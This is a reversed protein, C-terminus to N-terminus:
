YTFPITLAAHAVVANGFRNNQVVYQLIAEFRAGAWRDPLEFVEGLLGVKAELTHSTFKSLKVDDSLFDGEDAMDYREEYFFAKKTQRHFRYRVTADIGDGVAQIARLEPTHARLKWNDRYFRYLGVLTTETARVHYRASAAVATRNRDTPHRERVTGVSTGTGVIASRYPNSMYGRMAVFDASVGVVATRSLIHSASAFLSYTQLDCQPTEAAGRKCQLMLQALGSAPGGSITDRGLGGGLGVTANKQALELEGRAGLYFSKYDPESSYKTDGGAKWGDGEHTYGIGGEYRKETFPETNVAGSSQSASTIADVLVHGTVLGREGAEFAGDLMPQMVRTAREKYYVGRVALTGDARAPAAALLALAGVGAAVVLQLRM